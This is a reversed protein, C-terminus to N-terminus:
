HLALLCQCHVKKVDGGAYSNNALINQPQFSFFIMVLFQSFVSLCAFIQYFVFINDINVALQWLLIETMRPKLLVM